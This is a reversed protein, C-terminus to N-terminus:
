GEGVSIRTVTSYHLYYITFESLVWKPDASVNLSVYLAINM